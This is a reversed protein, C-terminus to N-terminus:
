CALAGLAPAISRLCDSMELGYTSRLGPIVRLGPRDPVPVAQANLVTATVARDGFCNALGRDDLRLYLLDAITGGEMDCDVLAVSRNASLSWALVQLGPRRHRGARTACVGLLLSMPNVRKGYARWVCDWLPQTNGRRREPTGTSPTRRPVTLAVHLAVNSSGVAIWSAEDAMPVLM